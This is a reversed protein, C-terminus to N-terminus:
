DWAADPVEDPLKGEKLRHTAVLGLLAVAAAASLSAQLGFSSAVQGWLAAGLAGGGMTAVQVWAMGRARVRNPLAMQSVVHLSNLVTVFAMGAVMMGLLGMYLHPAWAVVLTAAASASTGYLVLDDTAVAARLAPLKFAVVIAGAGMAGLLLSYTGADAGPFRMAILPALAFLTIAQATFLACRILSYRSRPSRVVHRAGAMLASAFREPPHARERAAPMWRVLALAALGSVALNLAFVFEGGAQALLAGALAPGAIRSANLAVGNLAVGASVESRPLLEGTLAAIVPWRMATGVGNLFTLLLLTAPTLVGALTAVLLMAAVATIWWQSAILYRRRDVIDALAGSAIGLSFVPLAAATQVLAILLPDRTLSTMLWACTLESM